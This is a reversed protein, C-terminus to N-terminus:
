FRRRRRAMSLIWMLFIVTIFPTALLAISEGTKAVETGPETSTQGGEMDEDSVECAALSVGRYEDPIWGFRNNRGTAEAWVWGAEDDLELLNAKKYEPLYVLPAAHGPPLVIASRYGAGKYMVALLITVDECDGRAIGDENITIVLEDANIAFEEFDFQDVDPTYKVKDRVFYFIKEARQNPDPYEEAFQQGLEYARDINEGLSELTIVPSFTTEGTIQFFGDDWYARTRCIDWDDFIDEGEQYFGESSAAFSPYTAVLCIATILIFLLCLRFGSKRM